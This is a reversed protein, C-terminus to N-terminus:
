SARREKLVTEHWEYVAQLAKYKEVDILVAVPKGAAQLIVPGDGLHGILEQIAPDATLPAAEPRLQLLNSM